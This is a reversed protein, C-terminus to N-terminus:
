PNLAADQECKTTIRGRIFPELTKPKPPAGRVTLRDLTIGLSNGASSRNVRLDAFTGDASLAWTKSDAYYPWKLMNVLDQDTPFDVQEQSMVVAWSGSTGQFRFSPQYPGYMTQTVGAATYTWPLGRKKLGIDFSFGEDQRQWSVRRVLSNEFWTLDFQWGPASAHVTQRNGTPNSDTAVQDRSAGLSEVLQQQLELGTPSSCGQLYLVTLIMLRIYVQMMSKRAFSSRM